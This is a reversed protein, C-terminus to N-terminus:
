LELPTTVPDSEDSQDDGPPVDPRRRILIDGNPLVEPAEWRSLDGLMDALDSLYPEVVAGFRDLYPQVERGLGEIRPMLERELDRFLPGFDRGLDEFLRPMRDCGRTFPTCDPPVPQPQAIAPGALVLAATVLAAKPLM